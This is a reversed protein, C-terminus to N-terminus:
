AFLMAPSVAILLSPPPTAFFRFFLMMISSSFRCYGHRPSTDADLLALLLYVPMAYDAARLM